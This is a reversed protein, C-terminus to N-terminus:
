KHRRAAAAHEGESIKGAAEELDGAEVHPAAPRAGDAGPDHVLEAFIPFHDSGFSDLVALRKLRFSADHFIHDLPWRALPYNANFTAYLGRGVRPDLLGSIRQFLKTTHSWAVDNLDGIVIAPRRERRVTKAVTLLEADREEVDNAPRPPEPHVCYLDVLAGSRLRARAFISPIGPSVLERIETETLELRSFLHMGYTNELPHRVAYPYRDALAAIQRDWWENTEVALVLDPDATRVVRLFAASDRNDQLVNAIFLRLGHAPAADRAPLSQVRHFRTYPRIRYLQWGLCALTALFLAVNEAEALDLLAGQSAAALALGVAMQLRPFEWIRIWWKPSKLVALLTLGVLLLSVTWMTAAVAAM